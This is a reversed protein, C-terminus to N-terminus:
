KRFSWSPRAAPLTQREAVLQRREDFRQLAGSRIGLTARDLCRMRVLGGHQRDKQQVPIAPRATRNVLHAFQWFAAIALAFLAFHMQLTDGPFPDKVLHTGVSIMSYNPLVADFTQGKAPM